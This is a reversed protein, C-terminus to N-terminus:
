QAAGAECRIHWLNEFVHSAACVHHDREVLVSVSGLVQCLRFEGHPCRRVGLRIFRGNAHISNVAVPQLFQHVTRGKREAEQVHEAFVENSMYPGVSDEM